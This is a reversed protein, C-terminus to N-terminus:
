LSQSQVGCQKPLMRAVFEYNQESWASVWPRKSSTNGSHIRAILRDNAPVSVAGGVAKVFAGDEGVLQDPFKHGRWTEKRYFLSTGLAYRPAGEYLYAKQLEEDIFFMSRYGVLGAQNSILLKYQERLREPHSVDDDDWHAIFAGTAMACLRNRKAGVTLLLKHDARCHRIDSRGPILDAVYENGDDLIILEKNRWTQSLYCLIAAPIYERRNRTPMICSILPQM